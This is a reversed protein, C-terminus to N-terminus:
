SCKHKHCDLKKEFYDYIANHMFLKAEELM